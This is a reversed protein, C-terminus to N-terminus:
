TRGYRALIQAARDRVRKDPDSKAVDELVSRAEQEPAAFISELASIRITESKSTKLVTRLPPVIEKGGAWGLMKVALLQGYSRTSTLLEVVFPVALDGLCKIREQHEPKWGTWTSTKVGDVTTEMGDLTENFVRTVDEKIAAPSSLDVSGCRQQGHLFSMCATLVIFIGFIYIKKM